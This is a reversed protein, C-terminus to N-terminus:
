CEVGITDVLSVCEMGRQESVPKDLPLIVLCVGVAGSTRRINFRKLLRDFYQCVTHAHHKMPLLFLYSCPVFSYVVTKEKGRKEKTEKKIENIRMLVFPSKIGKAM